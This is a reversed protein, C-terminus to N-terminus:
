ERLKWHFRRMPERRISTALLSGMVALDGGPTPNGDVRPRPNGILWRRAEDREDHSFPIVLLTVAWNGGDLVDNPLSAFPASWWRSLSEFDTFTLMQLRGDAPGTLVFYVEDWPEFRVEIRVVLREAGRGTLTLLFTTTLGSDLQERIDDATLVSAPLGLKTGELVPGDGCMFVFLLFTIM